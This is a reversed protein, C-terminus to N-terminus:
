KPTALLLVVRGDTLTCGFVVQGRDNMQAGSIPFGFPQFDPFMELNRVSGLDPILTGNRAVLSVSRQSMVYLGEDGDDLTANFAIDGRNNLSFQSPGIALAAGLFAIRGGGPMSDGPGVIRTLEGRSSLFLEAISTGAGVDVFGLLLVDGRDNIHHGLSETFVGGGPAARGAATIQELRGTSARRVFVQFAGSSDTSLTGGFAVDGADNIAPSVAERLTGGGPVADGHIAVPTIAGTENGVYVGRTVGSATNVSGVFVLDGRGNLGTNFDTGVFTDGSPAKTVGPTMVAQLVPRAASFRYVGGNYLPPSLKLPELSFAFGLDGRSNLGINGLQAVSFVGGGPAAQGHRVVETLGGDRVLFIGEGDDSLDATFAVDGMNNLVPEFDNVFIGGGPVPDGVFAIARYAYGTQAAAPPAATLTAFLMLVFALPSVGLFRRVCYGM